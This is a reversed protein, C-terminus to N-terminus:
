NGKCSGTAQPVAALAQERQRAMNVLQNVYGNLRQTRLRLRELCEETTGECVGRNNPRNVISSVVRKALEVWQPGKDQLVKLPQSQSVMTCSSCAPSFVSSERPLQKLARNVENLLANNERTFKQYLSNSNVKYKMEGNIVFKVLRHEKRGSGRLSAYPPVSTAGITCRNLADTICQNNGGCVNCKDFTPVGCMGNTAIMDLELDVAPSGTFDFQINVAGIKSLDAGGESGISVLSAFPIELVQNVLASSAEVSGKSIRTASEYVTIEAKLPFSFPFDFSKVRLLFATGGDSVLNLGGLGLPNLVSNNDGDYQVEFSGTVNAGLSVNLIGSTSAGSLVRFDPFSGDIQPTVLTLFRTGGLINSNSVVRRLVRKNNEVVFEDKRFDIDQEAEFGDIPVAQAQYIMVLAGLLATFFLSLFRKMRM